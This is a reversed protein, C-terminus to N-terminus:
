EPAASNLPFFVFSFFFRVKKMCVLKLLAIAEQNKTDAEQMCVVLLIYELYGHVYM